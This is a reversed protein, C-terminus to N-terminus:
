GIRLLDSSYTVVRWAGLRVRDVDAHIVAIWGPVIQIFDFDGGAFAGQHPLVCFPQRAPKEVIFVLQTKGRARSLAAVLFDESHIGAALERFDIGATKELKAAWNM